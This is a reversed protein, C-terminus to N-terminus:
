ARQYNKPAPRKSSKRKNGRDFFKDGPHKEAVKISVPKGNIMLHQFANLVQTIYKSDAELTATNKLIEIKGVRIRQAGPVDNIKGLIRQPLLGDKKGVNLTFCAFSDNEFRKGSVSSKTKRQKEEAVNLDPAHQYYELLRNLEMSLLRKILEERDLSALKQEMEGFFSHINHQDVDHQLINEALGLLQKKCIENGTPIRGCEFKRSLRREIDKIKFTERSHIIAVSVGKKGARGTRGSRHTYNATDDPLNYNIVHTLDNVDLGRAAVDTAVLIQMSKNRFKKMVHDRQGQSLDGHLADAAYGDQILNDAIDKTEQRTRCFVIAYMDPNFDVIRKLVPYRDKAKAMYYQHHVNETGSNREGITVEEPNKMYNGAILSVAKSMTASFLLTNKSAPTQALIADLEDIFGMQLMEDAEDLVLSSINTLNVKGRRLLDNLRGPTAVIVHVGRKITQIQQDISTGGYVAIIKVAPMYEAYAQMDKAVQICLERTPCLVLSQTEKSRTDTLQLLPIGFAATKGTGTQALSIMDGHKQLMRPIVSAQVPTPAEFGLKTLGLIINEQVGINEFSTM